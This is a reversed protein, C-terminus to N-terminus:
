IEMYFLGHKNCYWLLRGHALVPIRVQLDWEPYQKKLLISDGTLLAIFAIYHGREMPHDSTIYFDNEVTEVTLKENENAKQPKLAKMKKGCCSMNTDTIATVMNGCAPCIYFQLNKMSGGLIENRDLEGSLLNELDVDLITSLEPLLSVEPCGFGREWKSVTKDSINMREALQVQTLNKEKRLNYILKGIKINNM